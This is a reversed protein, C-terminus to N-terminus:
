LTSMVSTIRTIFKLANAKGHSYGEITSKDYIKTWKSILFNRLIKGLSFSNKEIIPHRRVWEFVREPIM